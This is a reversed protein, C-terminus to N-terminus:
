RRRSGTPRKPSTSCHRDLSRVGSRHVLAGSTAPRTASSARGVVTPPQPTTTNHRSRFSTHNCPAGEMAATAVGIVRRLAGPESPNYLPSQDANTVIREAIAMGQARVPRLGLRAIMANIADEADLVAGRRVIVIRSRTMPPKHAEAITRRMTRALAKRTRDSTLQAARLALEPRTGPDAGEALALTLAERQLATRFRVGLSRSRWDTVPRDRFTDTPADFPRTGNPNAIPPM